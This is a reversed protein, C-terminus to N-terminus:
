EEEGGKKKLLDKIIKNFHRLGKLNVTRLHSDTAWCGNCLRTGTYITPDGCIRCKVTEDKM